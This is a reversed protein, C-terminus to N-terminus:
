AADAGDSAVDSEFAQESTIATLISRAGWELSKQKITELDAESITVAGPVSTGGNGGLVTIGERQLYAYLAIHLIYKTMLKEKTAISYGANEMTGILWKNGLSIFIKVHYEKETVEAVNDETWGLSGWTPSGVPVEIIDPMDLQIKKDKGGQLPPVVIADKWDDLLVPKGNRPISLAIGLKFQSNPPYDGNLSVGISLRGGRFDRHRGTIMCLQQADKSLLIQANSRSLFDDPADSELGIWKTWGRGVRVPINTNGIRIFSPLDRTPLPSYQKRHRRRRRGAGKGPGSGGKFDFTGPKIRNIMEALRRCLTKKAKMVGHTLLSEEREQDLDSLEPHLVDALIGRLLAIGESTIVERTSSLMKRRGLDNLNDCEVQVAVDRYLNPLHCDNALIRKPLTAHTQGLYTINIPEDPDIFTLKTKTDTGELFVWYRIVVSGYESNTGVYAILDRTCQVKESRQLRDRSGFLRRGDPSKEVWSREERIWFPLVPDFLRSELVSYVDLLLPRAGKGIEYNVHRVLTGPPFVVEDAEICFPLGDSSVMYVYQGDKEDQEADRLRVITFSIRNDHSGAPKQRRSVVVTYESFRYTAAGGQGFRGMLYWKKIKYDRNLSMITDPFEERSIGTGHDCIDITPKAESDGDRLTVVIGGQEVLDEREKTKEMSSLYGGKVGFVKQVFSRPSSRGEVSEPKTQAALELRADIANTVREVIAAGPNTAIHITAFNSRDGVPRWQIRGKDLRDLIGRVQDGKTAVLLEKLVNLLEEDSACPRPLSNGEDGSDPKM